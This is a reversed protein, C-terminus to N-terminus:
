FSQRLLISLLMVKGRHRVDRSKYAKFCPCPFRVHWGQNLDHGGHSPRVTACRRANRLVRRGPLPHYGHASHRQTFDYRHRESGMLGLLSLVSQKCLLRTLGTPPPDGGRLLRPPIVHQFSRGRACAISVDACRPRQRCRGGACYSVTRVCYTLRLPVMRSPGHHRVGRTCLSTLSLRSFARVPLYEPPTFSESSHM